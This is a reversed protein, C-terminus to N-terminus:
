SHNGGINGLLETMMGFVGSAAATNNNGNFIDSNLM